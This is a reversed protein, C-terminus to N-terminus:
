DQLWGGDMLRQRLALRTVPEQGDQFKRRVSALHKKVGDVSIGMAEATEAMTAGKGALYISVVEHERATLQPTTDESALAAAVEPPVYQEGQAAARLAAEVVAAPSTKPVYALAGAAYAQRIVAPDTVSSCVMVQPGASLLARIKASLPINDGLLVDLIVVDSLRDLHPVLEAWSAFRGVVRIGETNGELWVALGERMVAHDEVIDVDLTPASLAYRRWGGNWSKTRTM